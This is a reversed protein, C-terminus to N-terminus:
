AARKRARYRRQALKSIERACIRCQRSVGKNVMRTNEPNYEHGMPCHTKARQMAAMANDGAANQRRANEGRTVPELHDPNVCCKLRCKHDIDLAKPIPGRHMEYVARHAKIQKGNRTTLGYGYHDLAGTWLWCGSNPEPSIRELINREINRIWRGRGDM